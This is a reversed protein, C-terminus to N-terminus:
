RSAVWRWAWRATISWSLRLRIKTSVISKGFSHHIGLHWLSLSLPHCREQDFIDGKILPSWTATWRRSSRMFRRRDKRSVSISAVFSAGTTSAINMNDLIYVWLAEPDARITWAVHIALWWS